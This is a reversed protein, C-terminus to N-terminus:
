EQNLWEKLRGLIVVEQKKLDSISKCGLLFATIEMEQRFKDLYKIVGKSGSKNQAQLIPMANGIMDAGLIIAKVGDVGNRIGGSGVIKKEGLLANKAEIISIATPLGFERFTDNMGNKKRLADIYAWSTGGAGQVDIAKVGTNKIATAAEFGIGHGVEKVYIPVSIEDAYLRIREVVGSFDFDGEPQMAEQGANVHIALSDLEIENIAENLEQPSYDKIQAAGINGAVFIDPAVDKVYYTSTLKPDELMARMSGLGMGIGEEQCAIAIDKNIKKAAQAGGTIASVIFPFEFNKGLFSTSLDVESMSIEPLCNYHLEIDELLTTKEKFAVDKGLCLELHDKKRQETKSVM